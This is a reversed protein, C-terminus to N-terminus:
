KECLVHKGAAAALEVLGRHKVNESCVVVANLGPESLLAEYSEFRRTEYREAMRQAREPSEDAIGVLETDARSAISHAYSAAHMHAFSMMGIRVRKQAMRRGKVAQFCGADFYLRGASAM